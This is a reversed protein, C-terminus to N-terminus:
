QEDTAEALGTCRERALELNQSAQAAGPSELLALQTEAPPALDELTITLDGLTALTADVIEELDLLVRREATRLEQEEAELLEQEEREEASLQEDYEDGEWDNSDSSDSQQQHAVVVRVASWDVFARARAGLCQVRNGTESDQGHRAVSEEVARSLLRLMERAAEVAAGTGEGTGNDRSYEAAAALTVLSHVASSLEESWVGAVAASPLARPAHEAVAKAAEVWLGDALTVAESQMQPDSSLEDFGGRAAVLVEVLPRVGAPDGTAAPTTTAASGPPCPASRAPPGGCGLLLMLFASSLPRM